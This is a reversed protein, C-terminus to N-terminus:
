AYKKPHGYRDVAMLNLRSVDRNPDFNGQLFGGFHGENNQIPRSKSFFNQICWTHDGPRALDHYVLTKIDSGCYRHSGFKEPDSLSPFICENFLKRGYLWLARQEGSWTILDTIERGCPRHDGFKAFHCKNHSDDVWVLDCHRHGGFRAPHNCETLLKRGYLELIGLDCLRALEHSM